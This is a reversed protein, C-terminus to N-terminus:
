ANSVPQSRTKLDDWSDSDAIDDEYAILYGWRQGEFADEAVLRRVLSEAAKRKAQVVADERGKESKGEIIWHVGDTDLAVFDPFYRDKPNYYVFAGAHPHLRHWWVISPSTNLLKALVYEGSYSDFSESEMLSKFWGGYTRRVVFDAHVEVQDHITEGIPLSHDEILMAKPYVKPVERTSRLVQHVYGQILQQLQNQASDM